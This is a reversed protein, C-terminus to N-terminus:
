ILRPFSIVNSYVFLFQVRFQEFINGLHSLYRDRHLGSLLFGIKGLLNTTFRRADIDFLHGNEHLRRHFTVLELIGSAISFFIDM